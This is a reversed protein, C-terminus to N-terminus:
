WLKILGTLAATMTMYRAFKGVAMYALCPWFLLKLWGAVACLPDDVGKGVRRSASCCNSATLQRASL